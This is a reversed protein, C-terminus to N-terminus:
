RVKLVLKGQTHRSELEEQAESAEDMPFTKQVVVVVKGDDILRAIEELQNRKPEAMFHAARVDHEAAKESSPPTLTSVLTGGRKLVPWSREQVDGGILDIVLDVDHVREEFRERHHDIVQKAGLRHLLEMDNASATAIVTAGRERAFQVAFHGVGGAAGHILVTQGARLRGHDFLAQWATTAALPVGAAHVHDISRPRPALEQPRAIAFEAYGGSEGGLFAYVEEGLKLSRDGDHWEVVDGSIERGLTAPLALQPFRGARMKCDVPNVGAAHVRILVEDEKPRPTPLDEVELMEPGGFQHLRITKM